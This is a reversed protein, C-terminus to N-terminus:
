CGESNGLRGHTAQFGWTPGNGAPAFTQGTMWPAVTFGGEVLRVFDVEAVGAQGYGMMLRFSATAGSPAGM